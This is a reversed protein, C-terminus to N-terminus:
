GDLRVNEEGLVTKLDVMLEPNPNVKFARSILKTLQDEENYVHFFLGCEGPYKNVLFRIRDLEGNQLHKPRVTLYLRRAFSLRAGELPVM